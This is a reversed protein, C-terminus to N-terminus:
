CEENLIAISPEINVSNTTSNTIKKGRGRSTRCISYRTCKSKRLVLCLWVYAGKM